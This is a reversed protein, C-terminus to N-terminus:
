INWRVDPLAPFSPDVIPNLFYHRVRERYNVWDLPNQLANQVDSTVSWDSDALLQKATAKCKEKALNEKITDIIAEIDEWTYPQKQTWDPVVWDGLGDHFRVNDKFSQEDTVLNSFYFAVGIQNSLQLAATFIEENSYM